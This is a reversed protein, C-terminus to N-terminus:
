PQEGSKSSELNECLKLLGWTSLFFAVAIGVYIIDM